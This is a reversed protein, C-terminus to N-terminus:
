CKTAPSIDTSASSLREYDDQAKNTSQVIFAASAVVDLARWACGENQTLRTSRIV